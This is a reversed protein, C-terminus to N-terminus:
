RAGDYPKQRDIEASAELIVGQDALGALESETIGLLQGYVLANDHGLPVSCRWIEGPTASFKPFVGTGKAKRGLQLDEWEIHVYRAEYHPDEAMDKPTMIPCCGVQAANLTDVVEKVTRAEV